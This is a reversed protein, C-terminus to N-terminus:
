LRKGIKEAARDVAQAIEGEAANAPDELFKAKGQEHHATLDDHVIHGYYGKELFGGGAKLPIIITDGRIETPERAITGQLDGSLVPCETKAREVIRDGVPEVEAAIERILDQGFSGLQRRLEDLGKVIVVRESM